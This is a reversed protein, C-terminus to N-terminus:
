KDVTPKVHNCTNNVIMFMQVAKNLHRTHMCYGEPRSCCMGDHPVLQCPFWKIVQRRNTECSQLHQESDYVNTSSKFKSAKYAYLLETYNEPRSCCMGDRPVLQCPFRKIVQRRNTECSQLHQERNYVKIVHRDIEKNICNNWPTLREDQTIWFRRLMNNM